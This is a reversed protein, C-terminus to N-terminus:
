SIEQTPNLFRGFQDDAVIQGITGTRSSLHLTHRMRHFSHCLSGFYDCIVKGLAAKDVVFQVNGAM